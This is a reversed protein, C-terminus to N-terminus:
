GFREATRRAHALREAARIQQFVPAHRALVEAHVPHLFRFMEVDAIDTRQTHTTRGIFARRALADLRRGILIPSEVGGAIAVESASFEPGVAAATELVVRDEPGLQDFRWLVTDLLGEPLSAEITRPSHRLRWLRNELTLFDAAVLGDMAAVLSLPNGGTVRHLLGALAAVQGEGFRELLYARVDNERMPELQVSLCRGTSRLEAALGRLAAGAVTSAFPAYTAVILTRLPAHRRALGRLLEVTDLDGWHLDELVIVTTTESGLTELLASLERIMRSSETARQAPVPSVVDAIWPPLQALWGPSHRALLAPIKAPAQRALYHLADLVPFYPEAPGAHDLCQGYCVRVSPLASAHQLFADCLATKGMGREGEVLVVRCEAAAAVALVDRLRELDERHNIFISSAMPGRAPEALPLPADSVPAVFTYGRGPDSRIFQPERPHDDFARRLERILVKINDPQVHTDPWVSTLMAQHSVIRGAHAILCRLVDGAKRTIAIERTGRWLSGDREDFRYSLFYKM